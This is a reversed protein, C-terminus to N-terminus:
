FGDLNHYFSKPDFRPGESQSDDVGGTSWLALYTEKLIQMGMMMLLM